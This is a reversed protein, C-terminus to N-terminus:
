LRHSSYGGFRFFVSHTHKQFSRMDENEAMEYLIAVIQSHSFPEKENQSALLFNLSAILYAQAALTAM